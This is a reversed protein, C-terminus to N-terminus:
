RTSPVGTPATLISIDTLLPMMSEAAIIEKRIRIPPEKPTTFEVPAIAEKIDHSTRLNLDSRPLLAKITINIEKKARQEAVKPIFKSANTKTGKQITCLIVVWFQM